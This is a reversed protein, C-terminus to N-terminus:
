YPAFWIYGITVGLAILGIAVLANIFTYPENLWLEVEIFVEKIMKILKM